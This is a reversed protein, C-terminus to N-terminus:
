FAAVAADKHACGPLCKFTAASRPSVVSRQKEKSHLIAITTSGEEVLDIVSPASALRDDYSDVHELDYTPNRPHRQSSVTSLTTLTIFTRNSSITNIPLRQCFCVRTPWAYKTRPNDLM